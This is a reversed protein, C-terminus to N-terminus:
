SDAKISAESQARLEQLRLLLDRSVATAVDMRSPSQKDYFDEGFIKKQSKVAYRYSNGEKDLAGERIRYTLTNNAVELLQSIYNTPGSHLLKQEKSYVYVMKQKRMSRFGVISVVYFADALSQSDKQVDVIAALYQNDCQKLLAQPAIGLFLAAGIVDISYKIRKPQADVDQASPFLHIAFLPANWFQQHNNGLDRKRSSAAEVEATHKKQKALKKNLEDQKLIAQIRHAEDDKGESFLDSIRLLLATREKKTLDSM